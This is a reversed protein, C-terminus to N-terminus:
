GTRLRIFDSTQLQGVDLIPDLPLNTLVLKNQDYSLGAHLQNWAGLGPIRLSECALTGETGQQFQLALHNLELDGDKSRFILNLNQADIKKPLIVPIRFGNPDLQPPLPESPPRVVIDVERLEALEIANLFDKKFLSFLNYRLEIRKADIRELPLKTNEPLPQLHLDEITLDSFISGQIKFHLSFAQSNAFQQAAVLQAM